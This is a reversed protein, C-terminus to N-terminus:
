DHKLGVRVIHVVQDLILKANNLGFREFLQPLREKRHGAERGGRTLPLGGGGGGRGSPEGRICLCEALERLM